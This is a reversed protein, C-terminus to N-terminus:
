KKFLNQRYKEDPRELIHTVMDNSLTNIGGILLAGFRIEAAKNAMLTINEVETSTSGLAVFGHNQIYISKPREGHKDLFIEIEKKAKQALQVGPDTYPIFVSEKGLLIIEDPYVRGKLNEPFSKSCTLKNVITPHTHGVFNVGKLNLCIAHLLTEVSPNARHKKDVKAKEFIYNIEEAKPSEMNILQVIPEFYVQIFDNETVTALQSGSAKIFFSGAGDKSEVKASTNGEGIIALHYDIKGLNNSLKVLKHLTEVKIKQWEKMKWEGRM